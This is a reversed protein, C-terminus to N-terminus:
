GVAVAAPGEDGGRKGDILEVALRSSEALEIVALAVGDRGLGFRPDFLPQHGIELM